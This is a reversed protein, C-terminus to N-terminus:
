ISNMMKTHEDEEDFQAEEDIETSIALNQEIQEDLDSVINQRDRLLQLEQTLDNIKDELQIKTLRLQKVQKKYHNLGNILSKSKENFENIKTSTKDLLKRNKLNEFKLQKNQEKLRRYDEVLKKFQSQSPSSKLEKTQLVKIQNQMTVYLNEFAQTAQLAFVLYPRLCSFRIDFFPFNTSRFLKNLAFYREYITMHYGFLEEGYVFSDDRIVQMMLPFLLNFLKKNGTYISNLQYEVKNKSINFFFNYLRNTFFFEELNSIDSIGRALDNMLYQRQEQLIINQYPPVVTTTFLAQRIVNTNTKMSRPMRNAYATKSTSYAILFPIKLQRGYTTPDSSSKKEVQLHKVVQTETDSETSSDETQQQEESQSMIVIRYRNNATKVLLIPYKSPDQPITLM